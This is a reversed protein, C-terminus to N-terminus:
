SPDISLVSSIFSHLLRFSFDYTLTYVLREFTIEASYFGDLILVRIFFKEDVYEAVFYRCGLEGSRKM